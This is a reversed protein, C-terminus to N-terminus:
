SDILDILKYLATLNVKKVLLNLITEGNPLIILMLEAIKAPEIDTICIENKVLMEILRWSHFSYSQLFRLNNISYNVLNVGPYNYGILNCHSAQHVAETTSCNHENAIDDIFKLEINFHKTSRSKIKLREKSSLQAFYKESFNIPDLDTRHKLEEKTLYSETIEDKISAM